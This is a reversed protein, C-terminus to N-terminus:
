ETALDRLKAELDAAQLRKWISPWDSAKLTTFPYRDQGKFRACTGTVMEKIHGEQISAKTRDRHVPPWKQFGLM